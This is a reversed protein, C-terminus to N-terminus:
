TRGRMGEVDASAGGRRVTSGRGHEEHARAWAPRPGTTVLRDVPAILRKALAGAIEGVIVERDDADPEAGTWGVPRQLARYLAYELATRLSAAPRLDKFEDTHGEALRRTLAKVTSWHRRPVDPAPTDGLAGRWRVHFARAAEVVAATVQARDYVPRSPGTEPPVADATLADLLANLQGITRRAAKPRAPDVLDPALLRDIGGVFFRADDLRRRLVREAIGLEERVDGLVNEASGLVHRERDPFSRLNDGRVLDFHTFVFFLKGGNGTAAATRMVAVPAAQMPQQANDVLVIADVEDLRRRLRTSVEAVSGPAHGLGEGDILVLRPARGAWRPRFPGAVRVGDVLPTLLHGFFAAQNSSFRTIVRLFEARDDSRWTWSVPWGDARRLEGEGLLAFRDHVAALLAAVIRDAVPSRRVRTELEDEVAEAPAGPGLRALEARVFRRLERVSTRVLETTGPDPAADPPGLAAADDDLDDPEDSPDAAGPAAARGLLYSFRFRQGVHDLLRDQVIREPREELVARAAEWVNDRLHAAVEDRGAFTVAARYPGDPTLVLETDAVTTKATSTSPFRETEPDTGLLQRVVTTKGAGTTGLLLVRRYGAAPLPLLGDRVATHDAPEGAAARWQLAVADAIDKPPKWIGVERPAPVPEPLLVADAFRWHVYRDRAWPGCACSPENCVDALRAVAVIADREAAERAVQAPTRGTLRATAALLGSDAARGACIAFWGRRDTPYTRNYVDQHGHAIAWAAPQPVTLVWSIESM